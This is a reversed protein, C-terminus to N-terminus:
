NQLRQRKGFSMINNLNYASTISNLNLIRQSVPEDPFPNLFEGFCKSRNTDKDIYVKASVVNGFPNFTQLLDSDTYEQPLHYIFLNAGDPGEHQRMGAVVNANAVAAANAAAIAAQLQQGANQSLAATGAASSTVTPLVAQLGVFSFCSTPSNCLILPSFAVLILWRSQLSDHM